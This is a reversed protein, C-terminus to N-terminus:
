PIDSLAFVLLVVWYSFFESTSCSDELSSEVVAPARRV